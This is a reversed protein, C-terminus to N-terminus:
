KNKCFLSCQVKFKFKKQVKKPLSFKKNDNLGCKETLILYYMHIFCVLIMFISSAAGKVILSIM